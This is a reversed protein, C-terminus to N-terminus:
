PRAERQLLVDATVRGADDQRIFRVATTAPRRMARVGGAAPAPRDLVRRAARVSPHLGPARLVDFRLPLSLFTTGSM